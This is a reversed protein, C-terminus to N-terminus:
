AGGNRGNLLALGVAQITFNIGAVGEVNCDGGVQTVWFYVPYYLNSNYGLVGYGTDGATPRYGVTSADLVGTVSYTTTVAGQVTETHINQNGDVPSNFNTVPLPSSQQSPSWQAVNLNVGGIQVYGYKGPVPTFTVTRGLSTPLAARLVMVCSLLLLSLLLIM